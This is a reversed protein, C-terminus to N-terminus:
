NQSGTILFELLPQREDPRQSFAAMVDEYSETAPATEPCPASYLEHMQEDSCGFERCIDEWERLTEKPNTTADDM